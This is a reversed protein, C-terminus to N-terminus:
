PINLIEYIPKIKKHAENYLNGDDEVLFTSIKEEVLAKQKNLEELIHIGRPIISIKYDSFNYSHPITKIDEVMRLYKEFDSEKVPYEFNEINLMLNIFSPLDCIMVSRGPQRELSYLNADALIPGILDPDGFSNAAIVVDKDPVGSAIGVGIRFLSKFEPPLLAYTVGEVEMTRETIEAFWERYHMFNARIFEEAKLIMDRACLIARKTSDIAPILEFEAGSFISYRLKMGKGTISEAYLYDYLSGSNEAFWVIGGDGTDKLLFGKYRRVIDSMEKAFKYKIKQEKLANHLKIGMYSSGRIDYVLMTICKRFSEIFNVIDKAFTQGRDKLELIYNGSLSLIKLNAVDQVVKSAENSNPPLCNVIDFLCQGLYNPIIIKTVFSNYADKIGNFDLEVGLLVKREFKNLLPLDKSKQQHLEEFGQTLTKFFIREEQTTLPGFKNLFLYEDYIEAVKKRKDLITKEPWYKLEEEEKFFRQIERQRKEYDKLHYINGLFLRELRSFLNAIRQTIKEVAAGKEVENEMIDKLGTNTEEYLEALQEKLRITYLNINKLEEDLREKNDHLLYSIKKILKGLSAPSLYRLYVAPIKQTIDDINKFSSRELDSLLNLLLCEVRTNMIAKHINLFIDPSLSFNRLEQNFENIYEYEKVQEILSILEKPCKGVLAEPIPLGMKKHGVYLPLEYGEYKSLQGGVWVIFDNRNEFIKIAETSLGLCKLGQQIATLKLRYEKEDIYRDKLLKLYQSNEEVYNQLDVINVKKM